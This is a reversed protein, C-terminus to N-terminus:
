KLTIRAPGDRRQIEGIIASNEAGHEHLRDVLRDAHNPDVAILLGGSTQPDFAFPLRTPEADDTIEIRDALAERNTRNARSDFDGVALPESGDLIPWARSHLVIRVDSGEAVEAAHGALGYGTVDTLAHVHEIGLARIADRAGANLTIMSGITAELVPAPCSDRRAATAVFGTGLPKTLILADGPRAGVNTRLQDILVLGNVSLGFKIEADRVSHGGVVVAGAAQVREAGGALIAEFVEWPLKDEPFAAINLASLPEANMAYIDSLANAAAIQGFQYPDDVLPPFFDLTQVLARRDDLRIVGADDSTQPGVLVRPDAGLTSALGRLVHAIGEPAM